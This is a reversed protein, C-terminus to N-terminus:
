VLYRLVIYTYLQSPLYVDMSIFNPAIALGSHSAIRDNCKKPDVGGTNRGRM